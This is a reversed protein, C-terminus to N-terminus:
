RGAERGGESGGERGRERSCVGRVQAFRPRYQEFLGELKEWVQRPLVEVQALRANTGGVVKVM